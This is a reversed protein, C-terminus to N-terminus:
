ITPYRRWKQPIPNENSATEVSALLNWHSLWNSLSALLLADQYSSFLDTLFLIIRSMVVTQNIHALERYIQRFPDM